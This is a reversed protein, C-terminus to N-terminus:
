SLYISIYIYIYSTQIFSFIHLFIHSTFCFQSLPSSLCIYYFSSFLFNTSSPSAYLIIFAHFPTFLRHHSISLSSPLLLSPFIFRSPSTLPSIVLFLILSLLYSSLLSTLYPTISFFRDYSIYKFIDFPLFLHFFFYNFLCLYFSLIIIKQFLWAFETLTM